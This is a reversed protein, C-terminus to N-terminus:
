ETNETGASELVKRLEPSVLDSLAEVVSDLTVEVTAGSTTYEFGAASLTGQLNLHVNIDEVRERGIEKMAWEALEQRLDPSVNIKFGEVVEQESKAYLLILEHLVKGLFEVDGLAEATHYRLVAQLCKGLTEQLRLVADRAALSLETKGRSLINQAEANANAITKEGQANADAIIQEAQKGADAVIKQAEQRGAHVGENQLKAVFSEISEAM